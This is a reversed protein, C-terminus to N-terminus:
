WSKPIDTVKLNKKISKKLEVVEKKLDKGENSKKFAHMTRKLSATEKNHTAAKWAKTYAKDWKGGDLAEYQDAVDDFEDSIDSMAKNPIHIGSKTKKISKKLAVGVDHWEKLLRKGEPTALFAKDLEELRKMEKSHAWKKFSAKLEKVPQSDKIKM